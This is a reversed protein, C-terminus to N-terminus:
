GIETFGDIWAALLMGGFIVGVGPIGPVVTGIVGIVILAIALVWLWTPDMNTKSRTPQKNRRTNPRTDAGGRDFLQKRTGGHISGQLSRRPM